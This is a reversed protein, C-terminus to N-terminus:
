CRGACREKASNQAATGGGPLLLSRQLARAVLVAPSQSAFCQVGGVARRMTSMEQASQLHVLSSKICVNVSEPSQAWFVRPQVAQSVISLHLNTAPLNDPDRRKRSPLVRSHTM